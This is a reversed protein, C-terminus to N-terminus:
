LIEHRKLAKVFDYSILFDFRAANSVSFNNSFAKGAFLGASFERWFNYTAILFFRKGRGLRDSNLNLYNRDINVFGGNLSIRPAPNKQIWVSCGWDPHMELREYNDFTVSDAFRRNLNIKVAQRLTEVGENMTYDGSVSVNKAVKKLVLFQHYNMRSLHRYRDFVEPEEFDGVYGGSVSIEDFFLRDPRRVSIREGTIYGNNSYSTVETSEGRNFGIGGYQFEVGKWPSATLYLEKLYVKKLPDGSGVGTANWSHTFSDGTGFRFGVGYDGRPDFKLKGRAAVQFQVQYIWPSDSAATRKYRAAVNGSQMDLWRALPPVVTAPEGAIGHVAAAACLLVTLCGLRVRRGTL